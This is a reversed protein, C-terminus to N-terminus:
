AGRGAGRARGPDSQHHAYLHQRVDRPQVAVGRSRCRRVRLCTTQYIPTVRAGTAPDPQAGAHIALTNFGPKRDTSMELGEKQEDAVIAFSRRRLKTATTSPSSRSSPALRGRWFRRVLHQPQRRGGHRRPLEPFIESSGAGPDVGEAGTRHDDPLSRPVLGEIQHCSEHKGFYRSRITCIRWSGLRTTPACPRKCNWSSTSKPISTPKPTRTAHLTIPALCAGRSDSVLLRMM